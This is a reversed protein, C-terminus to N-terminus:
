GVLWQDASDANKVPNLSPTNDNSAQEPPVADSGASLAVDLKEDSEVVAGDDVMVDAAPASASVVAAAFQFTDSEENVIAVSTSASTLQDEPSDVFGGSDIDLTSLAAVNVPAPDVTVLLKQPGSTASTSSAFVVSTATMTLEFTGSYGSPTTITLNGGIDAAVVKWAGTVSDYTGHNLISGAPAGLVTIYVEDSYDDPATTVAVPLNIPTNEAGAARSITALRGPELGLFPEIVNTANPQANLFGMQSGDTPTVGDHGPVVFVSGSTLWGNYTGTEFSEQSVGNIRLDDVLLHSDLATDNVDFVGMGFTYLGSTPAVYSFTKWGTTGYDGVVQVPALMYPVNNVTAFSFDNYPMYDHAVFNWDFTVIDGAQLTKTTKIASGDTPHLITSSGVSLTPADAAPVLDLTVFNIVQESTETGTLEPDVGTAGGDNSVITLGVDAWSNVLPAYTVGLGANAIFASINIATGTLVLSNTGSGMVTVDGGNSASLTGSGSPVSLRMTISSLGSDVDSVSIGTLKTPTDETVLISEPVTNEPADNVATVNVTVEVSDTLPDPGGRRGGDNFTVTVTRESDSPDQSTSLFGFSRVLETAVTPTVAETFGTVLVHGTGIGVITGIKAGSGAYRLVDGEVYFHAEPMLVIRDGDIRSEDTIRIRLGGGFFHDPNIGPEVRAPNMDPDSVEGEPLLATPGEDETYSVHTPEDPSLDPPDNVRTVAVQITGTSISGAGSGQGDNFTYVFIPNAPPDDNDNTYTIHRIVDNVLQTTAGTTFNITLIGTDDVPGRPNTFTAFTQGGIRLENEVVTFLAGSAESTDFNFVDHQHTGPGNQRAITLSAGDYNGAGGNLADLELDSVTVDADLVTPVEETTTGNLGVKTLEPADNVAAVHLDFTRITSATSGNAAETAIATVTLTLDGNFDPPFSLRLPATELSAIEASNLVWAGDELLGASFTAGEPFGTLQLSLTESGDQDALSATLGTLLATTDEAVPTLGSPRSIASDLVQLWGGNQTGTPEANFWDFALHVVQGTGYPMVSVASSSDVQYLSLSGAPLTTTLNYTGNNAPLSSPDDAFTTGAGITTRGIPQGSALISGQTLSYGFLSNLLNEDGSDSDGNIIFTGGSSVFDRLVSVAAPDLVLNGVEMEPILLVDAGAVAASISAADIGTFTRVTHGLSRLSAQVNDSESSTSGFTDVYLESDFVAVQANVLKTAALQQAPVALVPADAVPTVNVTLTYSDASFATGDSVQFGITAYPSGSENGDTLFRLRGAGIDTASIVQDLTVPVWNTVEGALTAIQLTGNSALTTIKVAALETAASGDAADSYTGFDGVTLVKATDEVTTVSDNTSVPADNVAGVTISFTQPASADVGGNTTGGSDRALVTVTATGSANAAPTYTLTGDASITPQTEFLNTNDNTLDFTVTGVENPGPSIATAFGQVTQSGADENVSVPTAALTFNPADNVANITITFTQPASTNTGGNATGGNDQAVVTITATGFANAAPTYTLAGDPGITPQVAFLSNDNNSVSLTVTQGAEDPPGPSIGTVFGPVAQAGADENSSVVVSSGPLAFSPPDNSPPTGGTGPPPPPTGGTGPPPPPPTGGTGPPPPPPTGGTEAPPTTTDSGPPTGSPATPTTAVVTPGETVTIAQGLNVTLNTTTTQQGEPTATERVFQVNSETRDLNLKITGEPTSSGPTGGGTPAEGGDPNNNNNNVGLQEANRPTNVIETFMKLADQRQEETLPSVNVGEKTMVWMDGSKEIVGFVVAKGTAPDIEKNGNSDLKFLEIKGDTSIMMLKTIGGNAEVELTWATGRIGMTATPTRVEMDGTKAVKGAVFSATGQVLTLLTSNNAGEPSYVMENLVMRCNSTLKFATGDILSISCSSNSGTEVLDQKFVRDGVQLIIVAGNRTATAMGAVIEVRGIAARGSEGETQAYESLNARALIEVIDATLVSGDPSTLNARKASSFYGLLVFRDGDDGTIILDSGVKAYQGKCLLDADPVVIAASYSSSAPPEVVTVGSLSVGLGAALGNPNYM